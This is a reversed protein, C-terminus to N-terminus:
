YTYYLKIIAITEMNHIYAATLKGYGIAYREQFFNLAVTQKKCPATKGTTTLFTEPIGREPYEAIKRELKSV